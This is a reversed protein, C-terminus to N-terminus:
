GRHHCLPARGRDSVKVKDNNSLNERAVRRFTISPPQDQLCCSSLPRRSVGICGISNRRKGLRSKLTSSVCPLSVLLPPELILWVHQADFCQHLHCTSYPLLAVVIKHSVFDLLGFNCAAQRGVHTDLKQQRQPM